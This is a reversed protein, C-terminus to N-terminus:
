IKIIRQKVIEQVESLNKRLEQENIEPNITISREEKSLDFQENIYDMTYNFYDLEVNGICSEDFEDLDKEELEFVPFLAASRMKSNDGYPCSVFDIPSILVALIKNGFCTYSNHDLKSWSHLGRSCTNDSEDCYERPLRTEKGIEYYPCGTHKKGNIFFITNDKHDPFYKNSDVEEMSNYLEELNGINNYTDDNQEVFLENSSNTKYIIEGEESEFLTYNRPAKKWSKIKNYISEIQGNYSTNGQNARRFTLLMGNSTIFMGNREIYNIANDRVNKNPCLMLQKLFLMLSDVTYHSNPNFKADLLRNVISQPIIWSHNKLYCNGGEDIEIVDLSDHLRKAKRKNTLSRYYNQKEEVTKKYLEEGRKPNIKYIFEQRTIKDNGYLKTYAIITEMNLQKDIIFEEINNCKEILISVNDIIRYKVESM